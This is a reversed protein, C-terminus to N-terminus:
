SNENTLEIEEADADDGLVDYWDGDFEEVIEEIDM